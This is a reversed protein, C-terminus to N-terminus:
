TLYKRLDVAYPSYGAARYIEFARTNGSLAGIMIMKFGRERAWDECGAILARGVGSGRVAETVYLESIWGFRREDQVVYIENEAEHVAAWGVAEGVENEALYHHGNKASVRATLVAFFDDIVAADIRRDHEIGHEFRQLEGIFHKIAPADAPVRAERIHFTKMFKACAQPCCPFPGSIATKTLLM